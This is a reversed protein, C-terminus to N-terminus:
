RILASQVHSGCAQRPTNDELLLNREQPSVRPPGYLKPETLYNREDSRNIRWVFRWLPLNQRGNREIRSPLFMQM